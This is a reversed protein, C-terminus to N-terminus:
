LVIRSLLINVMEVLNGSEQLKLKLEYNEKKYEQLM